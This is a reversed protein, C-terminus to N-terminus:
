SWPRRFRDFMIRLALDPAADPTRSLRIIASSMSIPLACTQVGTV